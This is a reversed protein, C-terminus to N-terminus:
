GQEVIVHVLIRSSVAPRVLGDDVDEAVGGAVADQVHVVDFVQEVGALVFQRLQMAVADVARPVEPRLFAELQQVLGVDDHGIRRERQEALIHRREHFMALFEHYQAALVGDGVLLDEREQTVVLDPQAESRRGVEGDGALSRGLLDVAQAAPVGVQVDFFAMLVQEEVATVGVVRRLIRLVVVVVGDLHGFDFVDGLVVVADHAHRDREHVGVIGSLELDDAARLTLAAAEGIAQPIRRRLGGLRGDVPAFMVCVSAPSWAM